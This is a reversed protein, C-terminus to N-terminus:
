GKMLPIELMVLAGVGSGDKVNKSHLSWGKEKAMLSIGYLTNGGGGIPLETFREKGVRKLAEKSFGTGNDRITIVLVAGQPRREVFPQVIIEYPVGDGAQRRIGIHRMANVLPDALFVQILSEARVEAADEAREGTDVPVLGGPLHEILEATYQPDTALVSISGLVHGLSEGRFCAVHALTYIGDAVIDRIFQTEGPADMEAKADQLRKRYLEDLRGVLLARDDFFKRADEPYRALEAEVFPEIDFPDAGMFYINSILKCSILLKYLLCISEYM